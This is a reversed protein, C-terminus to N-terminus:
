YCAIKPRLALVVLYGQGKLQEATRALDFFKTKNWKGPDHDKHVTLSAISGERKKRTEKERKPLWDHPEFLPM